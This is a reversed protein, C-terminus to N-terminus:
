CVRRVVCKYIFWIIVLFLIVIVEEELHSFLFKVILDIDIM